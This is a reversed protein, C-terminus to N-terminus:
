NRRVVRVSSVKGRIGDELRGDRTQSFQGGVWGRDAFMEVEFGDRLNAFHIKNDWGTHNLDEYEGYRLCLGNVSRKMDGESTFFCVPYGDVKDKLDYTWVGRLKGRRIDLPGSQRIATKQLKGDSGEWWIMAEWGRRLTFYQVPLGFHKASEILGEDSFKAAEGGVGEIGHGGWRLCTRESALNQEGAKVYLFMCIPYGKNAHAANSALLGLAVTAFAILPWRPMRDILKSENSM